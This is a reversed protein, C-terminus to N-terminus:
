SRSRYSEGNIQLLRPASDGLALVSICGPDFELRLVFDIPVGLFYMVIARLTDAHSFIAVSQNTHADSLDLLAEVVRQQIDVLGEGGPPRSVSRCSNYRRWADDGSMSAFTRNTWTGYDIEIFRPEINVELGRAAALPRATELTRELPSSYIAHLPADALRAPLSAAQQQGIANLHVGSSRGAMVRGVADTLGHRILLFTTM